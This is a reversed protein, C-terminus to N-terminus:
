CEVEGKTEHLLLSIRSMSTIYSYCIANYSTIKNNDPFIVSSVLKDRVNTSLGFM